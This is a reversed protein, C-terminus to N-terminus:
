SDINNKLNWKVPVTKGDDVVLLYDGQVYIEQGSLNQFNYIVKTNGSKRNRQM